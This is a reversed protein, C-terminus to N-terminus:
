WLFKAVIWRGSDSSDADRSLFSLSLFAIPSSILFMQFVWKGLEGTVVLIFDFALASLNSAFAPLFHIAGGPISTLISKYSFFLDASLTRIRRSPRRLPRTLMTSMQPHIETKNALNHENRKLIRKSGQSPQNINYNSTRMTISRRM